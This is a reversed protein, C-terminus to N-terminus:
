DNIQQFQESDVAAGFCTLFQCNFKAAGRVLHTIGSFHVCPQMLGNQLLDGLIAAVYRGAHEVSATTIVYGGTAQWEDKDPNPSLCGSGNIRAPSFGLSGWLNISNHHFGRYLLGPKQRKTIWGAGPDM